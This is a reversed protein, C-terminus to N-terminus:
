FKVGFRVGYTRPADFAQFVTTTQLGAYNAIYRDQINRVFAGVSFAADPANYTLSADSRLFAKQTLNPLHQYLINYSSSYYNDVRAFIEGSEALVFRHEYGFDATFKPSNPLVDGSYNVGAAVFNKFKADLYNVSASFIDNSTLAFRMDASVGKITARGANTVNFARISGFPAALPVVQGLFYGKYDDYYANVNLLVHGGFLRNKTGLEYHMVTEPDYGNGPPPSQNIGGPRYGDGVNAYILSQPAVDFDIGAKWNLKQFQTTTNYPGARLGTATTLVSTLENKDKSYRLGGTLRLRATVSYTAQGYGAYSHLFSEAVQLGATTISFNSYNTDTYFYFFGGTLKLPGNGNSTVRLEQQNWTDKTDVTSQQGNNYWHDQLIPAKTYVGLYTITAPGVDWNVEASFHRRNQTILSDQGNTNKDFPTGAYPLRIQGPGRDSSVDRLFQLLIKLNSTPTALLQFRMSEEHQDSFGTTFYGDHQLNQYSARAALWSTIPINLSGQAAIADYNGFQVSGTFGLQQTPKNSIINVAGGTAGRGYLTGQPGFLVEIRNTDILLGRQPPRAMYIGDVYTAVGGQGIPGSQSSGVGRISFTLNITGATVRVGPVVGGLDAPDTVNRRALEDAGIATIALPAKQVNIARREATVIIDPMVDAPAKANGPTSKDADVTAATEPQIREDMAQAAAPASALAMVSAATACIIRYTNM